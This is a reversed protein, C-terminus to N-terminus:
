KVLRFGWSCSVPDHRGHSFIVAFRMMEVHSKSFSHNVNM